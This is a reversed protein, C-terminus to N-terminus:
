VESLPSEAPGSIVDGTPKFRSGHCPCDWTREAQNWGVVCGMHTCTASRLTLEGSEDRYAAVKKGRYEVIKGQGRKVSRLSRSEAGAFRDRILYYPYDANEKIYEWLGRRLAARGPDFLETWPNRRGRVADTIMIAALTGFTMGNGAFGTAAYQHDTMKGIYPLGDPTEIVQGSWRHTAAIEPVGAILARELRDFCADTDLVQGTKHDEGGFIVVDHGGERDLRVYQYPDATDWFLADPITDRPVRGCVVYSTYLALKTQFLTASALGSTGVLPNHTAIVIDKCRVLHGNSKIGFPKESFEDAASHEFIEGGSARIARALGALYKRPHFRAQNEFLVGPGGVFPVDYVFTADFGLDSALDAEERLAESEDRSAQRNPAHLYGDVWEFGCEIDNDRVNADIQAIAALGADWVAQAHTRGFRHVLESLRVDTVMTLHATTHGTDIEACRARELVAVSQGATSLLHAASLGTIGGGVVIVDVDLNHDIKRFMPFSASDTWYPLTGTHTSSRRAM